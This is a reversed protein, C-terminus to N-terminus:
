SPLMKQIFIVDQLNWMKYLFDSCYCIVSCHAFRLCLALHFMSPNPNEKYNCLTEECGVNHCEYRNGLDVMASVKLTAMSSLNLALTCYIHNLLAWVHSKASLTPIASFWVLNPRERTVKVSPQHRYLSRMYTQSSFMKLGRNIYRYVPLSFFIHWFIISFKFGSFISLHYLSQCFIESWTVCQPARRKTCLAAKMAPDRLCSTHTKKTGSGKARGLTCLDEM